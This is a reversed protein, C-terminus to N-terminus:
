LIELFKNAAFTLYNKDYIMGVDNIFTVGEVPIEFLTGDKLESEVMEKITHGIGLGEKVLKIIPVHSTFDMLPKLELNKKKFDNDLWIREYSNPNPVLIPYQSLEELSVSEEESLFKYDKNGIFCNTVKDFMKLSFKPFTTNSDTFKRVVLDVEHKKLMELLDNEPKSVVHVEIKPYSKHFTVLYKYVCIEFLSANCGICISGSNLEKDEKFITQSIIINKLSEKVQSYLKEAEPTLVVGTLTRLVLKGDLFTELQKISYNVDQPSIFLLEAAKGINKTEAVACFIKYLNLDLDKEYEKM